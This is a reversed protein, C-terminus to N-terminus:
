TLQNGRLAALAAKEDVGHGHTIACWHSARIAAAVRLSLEERFWERLTSSKDGKAAEAELVAELTDAVMQEFPKM